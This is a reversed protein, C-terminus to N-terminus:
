GVAQGALDRDQQYRFRAADLGFSDDFQRRREGLGLDFQRAGESLSARQLSNQMQALQMQLARAAEADGSQVALSLAQQLQSMRQEAVRQLLQGRLNGLSGAVRERSQQIGQTLENSASGRGQAYQAEALAKQEGELQRQAENQAAEMPVKIQDSNADVPQQSQQLIKMLQERVSGMFGGAGSGGAGGISGSTQGYGGGGSEGGPGATPGVGTWAAQNIGARAGIRGDIVEGTPLTFRGAGDATLGHMNLLENQRNVDTGTSMWADRFQERNFQPQPAATVPPPTPRPGSGSGDYGDPDRPPPPPDDAFDRNPDFADSAM